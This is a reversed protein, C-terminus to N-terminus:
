ASAEADAKKHLFCAILRNDPKKSLFVHEDNTL